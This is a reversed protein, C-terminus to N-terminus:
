NEDNAYKTTPLINAFVAVTQDQYAQAKLLVKFNKPSNNQNARNPSPKEWSKFVPPPPPPPSDWQWLEQIKLWIFNVSPLLTMHVM